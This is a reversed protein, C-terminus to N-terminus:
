NKVNNKRRLNQLHKELQEVTYISLDMGIKDTLPDLRKIELILPEKNIDVINKAELQGQLAKIKRHLSIREDSGAKCQMKLKHLQKIEKKLETFNNMKIIQMLAIKVFQFIM